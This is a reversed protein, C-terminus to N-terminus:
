DSLRRWNNPIYGKFSIYTYEKGTNLVWIAQGAELVMKPNDWEKFDRDYSSIVFSSSADDYVQFKYITLDRVNKSTGFLDKVTNSKYKFPVSIMSFGIPISTIRQYLVPKPLTTFAREKIRAQSNSGGASWAVIRIEYMTDPKLSDITVSTERTLCCGDHFAWETPKDGKRIRLNVEYTIREEHSSPKWKITARDHGVESIAILGPRTPGAIASISILFLILVLSTKKLKKM